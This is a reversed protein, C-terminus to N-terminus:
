WCSVERLKRSLYKNFLRAGDDVQLSPVNRRRGIDPVLTQYKPTCAKNARYELPFRCHSQPPFCPLKQWLDRLPKNTIVQHSAALPVSLAVKLMFWLVILCVQFWLQGSLWDQTRSSISTTQPWAVKLDTKAPQYMLTCQVTTATVVYTSKHAKSNSGNSWM